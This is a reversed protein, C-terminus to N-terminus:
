FLTQIGHVIKFEHQLLWKKRWLGGSYGTLNKDSGIVRHCPVIIAIKNRGNTTAAARICKPDGMRKALDMYSITKGFPIALLENWVKEQFPTGEQYVPLDFIKRRGQFFEILEETCQHLLDSIGPIGHAIQQSNDIFSLETIYQETGGIKILGIPSEYYTYYNENM